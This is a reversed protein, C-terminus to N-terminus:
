PRRRAARARHWQYRSTTALAWPTTLRRLTATKGRSRTRAFTTSKTTVRVPRRCASIRVACRWCQRWRCHRRRCRQQKSRQQSQLLRDPRQQQKIPPQPSRSSSSPRWRRQQRRRPPRALPSPWCSLRCYRSSWRVWRHRQRSSGTWTSTARVLAGDRGSPKPAAWVSNWHNSNPAMHM